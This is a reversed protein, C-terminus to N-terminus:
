DLKASVREQNDVIVMRPFEKKAKRRRREIQM